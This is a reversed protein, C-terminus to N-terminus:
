EETRSLRKKSLEPANTSRHVKKDLTAKFNTDYSCDYISVKEQQSSLLKTLTQHYKFFNLYM